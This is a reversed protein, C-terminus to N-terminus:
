LLAIGDIVFENFFNALRHHARVILRLDANKIAVTRVKGGTEIQGFCELAKCGTRRLGFLALTVGPVLDEINDLASRNRKDGGHMARHDAATEFKRCGRMNADRVFRCEEPQGLTLAANEHAPAATNADLPDNAVG